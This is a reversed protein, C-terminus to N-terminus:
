SKSELLDSYSGDILDPPLVGFAELLNQAEAQAQQASIGAGMVAEVEVFSGLSEVQDLHVRIHPASSEHPKSFYGLLYLDRRKEVAVRVGLAVQLLVRMGEANVVPAIMYDSRKVGAEDARQYFILEARPANAPNTTPLFSIERLKLRGQAAHFYTDTQRMISIVEAGRQQMVSQVQSAERLRAKFEFNTMAM